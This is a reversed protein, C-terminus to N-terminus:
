FKSNLGIFYMLRQGGQARKGEIYGSTVMKEFGDMRWVHGFFRMQRQRIMEMLIKKRDLRKLVKENSVFATWPIKLIRRYVWM